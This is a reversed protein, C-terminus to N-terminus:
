KDGGEKLKRGYTKCVDYMPNEPLVEYQEGDLDIWFPEKKEKTDIMEGNSTYKIM